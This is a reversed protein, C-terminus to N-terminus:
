SCFFNRGGPINVRGSVLLAAAANLISIHQVTKVKLNRGVPRVIHMAPHYKPAMMFGLCAANVCRNVWAAGAGDHLFMQLRWLLVLRGGKWAQDFGGRM